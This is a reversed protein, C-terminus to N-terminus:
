TWQTLSAMWGDLGRNGEEGKTKLKEWCWFRKGHTLEERWTALTNSSSCWDKRYINLTAKRLSPSIQDRATWPDRWCWLEFADTRRSEGKRITWSECGYMPVPFIIAKVIHVKTPLAIDRSKFTSDLITMAKRGLLLSRKIEHSCQLWWECHNQLRLLYVRDSNLIYNGHKAKRKTIM